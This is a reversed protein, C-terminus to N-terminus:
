ITEHHDGSLNITLPYFQIVIYQIFYWSKTVLELYRLSSKHLYNYSDTLSSLM